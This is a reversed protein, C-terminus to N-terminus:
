LDHADSEQPEFFDICMKYKKGRSEQGRHATHARAYAHTKEEKKLGTEEKLDMFIFLGFVHAASRKRSDRFFLLSLFLFFVFRTTGGRAM